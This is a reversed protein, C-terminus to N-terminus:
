QDSLEGPTAGTLLKYLRTSTQLIKYINILGKVSKESVRYADIYQCLVDTCSPGTSAQDHNTHTQCRFKFVKTSSM